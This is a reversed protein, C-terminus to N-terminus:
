TVSLNLETLMPHNLRLEFGPLIQGLAAWQRISVNSLFFAPIIGGDALRIQIKIVAL